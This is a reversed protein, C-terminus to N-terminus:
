VLDEFDMTGKVTPACRSKSEGYQLHELAVHRSVGVTSLVAWNGVSVAPVPDGQM